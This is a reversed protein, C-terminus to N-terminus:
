GLQKDRGDNRADKRRADWISFFTALAAVAFFWVLFRPASHALYRSLAFLTWMVGSAVFAADRYTRRALKDGRYSVILGVSTVAAVFGACELFWVIM